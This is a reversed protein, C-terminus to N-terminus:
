ISFSFEPPASPEYIKIKKKRPKFLKFNININVNVNSKSFFKKIKTIQEQSFNDESMVDGFVDEVKFPTKKMIESRKDIYHNYIKKFEHTEKGDFKKDIM